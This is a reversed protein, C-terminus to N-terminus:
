SAMETDTAESRVRNPSEPATRTYHEFVNELSLRERSLERIPIGAEAFIRFLEIRPDAGEGRLQFETMSGDEKYDELTVGPLRDILRPLLVPLSQHNMCEVRYTPAVSRRLEDPPGSAVVWGDNLIIVSDCIAEIESLIHSSILVTHRGKLAGILNRFERVQLPDLGVTPEDLIL